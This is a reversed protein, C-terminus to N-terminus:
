SASDATVPAEADSDSDEEIAEEIDFDDYSKEWIVEFKDCDKTYKNVDAYVEELRSVNSALYMDNALDKSKTELFEIKALAGKVKYMGDVRERSVENVFLRCVEKANQGYRTEQDMKGTVARLMKNAYDDKAQEAENALDTLRTLEDFWKNLGFEKEVDDIIESREDVLEAHHHNRLYAIVRSFKNKTISVWHERETITLAM